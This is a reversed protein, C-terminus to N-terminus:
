SKEKLKLRRLAARAEDALRPSTQSQALEKLLERAPASAVHELVEVARSGQQKLWWADIKQVAQELRRRVELTVPETLKQRVAPEAGDHFEELARAAKSRVEFSESGLERLLVAIRQADPQRWARLQRGLFPVADDAGTVLEWIARGSTAGDAAELEKWLRTLQEGALHVAPMRGDKMRGTLDWLWVSRDQSGSALLRGDPSFSVSTNGTELSQFRCRVQGTALEVVTLQEGPYAIALSREDPAIAFLLDYEHRDAYRVLEHKRGTTVNTAWVRAERADNGVRILWKGSCSLAVGEGAPFWRTLPEDPLAIRKNENGTKLDVFLVYAKAVLDGQDRDFCALMLTTSDDAFSAVHFGAKRPRNLTYVPKGDAIDWVRVSRGQDYYNVGKGWTWGTSLLYKGDPSFALSEITQAEGEPWDLRALLEADARRWLRVGSTRGVEAVKSGDPSIALARVSGALSDWEKLLQRKGVDWLGLFGDWSGVALNGGDRTFSLAFPRGVNAFRPTGLRAVAGAPRYEVDADFEKPAAGNNVKQSAFHPQALAAVPKPAAAAPTRGAALWAGGSCTVALVVALGAFVAKSLTLGKTVGDALLIAQQSVQGTLHAANMALNAQASAVYVGKSSLLIAGQVTCRVLNLPMAAATGQTLAVAALAAPLSVGCRALRAQLRKRARDLRSSITGERCCLERAAEARSKGELFCMIFPARYRAPLGHIEQELLAQIERWAAESAPNAPFTKPPQRERLRRRGLDRKARLATRYAVGYLWNSLTESRRITNARRALVLFTAQFADEADQEQALVHRCVGLVMKSHRRVIVTFAAEDQRATFAGLLEADSLCRSEHVSWANRMQRLVTALPTQAM